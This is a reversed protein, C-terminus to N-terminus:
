LFFERAHTTNNFIRMIRLTTKIIEVALSTHAHQKILVCNEKM